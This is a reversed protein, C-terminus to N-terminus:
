GERMYAFSQDLQEFGIETALLQELEADSLLGSYTQEHGKPLRRVQTTLERRYVATVIDQQRASLFPGHTGLMAQCNEAFSGVMILSDSDVEAVAGLLGRFIFDQLNKAKFTAEDADHWVYVIPVGEGTAANLHFCYLDGAGNMAFPIFRLEPRVERYSDPNLFEAIEEAVDALQMLEFDNGFLLLPPRLRLRPFETILWEPGLQGIDLLGETYLQRYLAPYTFGYRAETAELLTTM